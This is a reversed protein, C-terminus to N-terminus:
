NKNSFLNIFDDIFFEYLFFASKVLKHIEFYRELYSLEYSLYCLKCEGLIDIRWENPMAKDLLNFVQYSDFFFSFCVKGQEVRHTVYTIGETKTLIEVLENINQEM